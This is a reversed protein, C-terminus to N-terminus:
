VAESFCIVCLTAVFQPIWGPHTPGDTPKFLDCDSPVLARLEKFFHKYIWRWELGYFSLLLLLMCVYIHLYYMCYLEAQINSVYVYMYM